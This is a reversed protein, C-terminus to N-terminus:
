PTYSATATPIALRQALLPNLNCYYPAVARHHYPPRYFPYPARMSQRQQQQRKVHHNTSDCEM